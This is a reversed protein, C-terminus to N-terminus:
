ELVFRTLQRYSAFSIDAGRAKLRLSQALPNIICATKMGVASAGEVDSRVSNGVYLLREPRVNLARSLALFPVSSPKLAGTEESGLVVDCLPALGWVSGKQSPLFDSLLGLKLGAAKFASFSEVLYPYPRVREFLPIWGTYILDDIKRRTEEPSIGLHASLLTAQWGFFDPHPEGPNAEQWVRIEGRVKGFLSLFRGNKQLFPGLIRWFSWNRYLTGDIDFAIADIESRM